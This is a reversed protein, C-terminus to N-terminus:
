RSWIVTIPRAQAAGAFPAILFSDLVTRLLGYHDTRADFLGHRVHAGAFITAVRNGRGSEAEDATVILLSNHTTSWRAYGDLHSQVWGDGQAVSGDHMDHDLNPVVFSVTPLKAFDSPFSTMPQNVGNPLASFDVWPNHKRAYAGSRCGAFGPAPLDESYGVFSHGSALLAAGLNPTRYSHPCSDDSLGQTSGSFLALYNPQSPHTIAYSQTLVAASAALRNLFPASAHQGIIDAFSHNELVVVVIHDFRPVAGPRTATTTPTSSAAPPVPGPASASTTPSPTPAEPTSATGCGAALLVAALSLM